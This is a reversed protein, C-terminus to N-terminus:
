RDLCLNCNIEFKNNEQEIKMVVNINQWTFAIQAQKDLFSEWLFM